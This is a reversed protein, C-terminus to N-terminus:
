YSRPRHPPPPPVLAPLTPPLSPAPAWEIFCQVVGEIDFRPYDTKEILRQIYEAQYRIAAEDTDPMDEEAKQGKQVELVMAPADPFGGIKGLIVDRAWWAQADAATCAPVDYPPNPLTPPGPPHRLSALSRCAVRQTRALPTPPLRGCEARARRAIRRM